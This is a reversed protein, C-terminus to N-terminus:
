NKQRLQKAHVVHLMSKPVCLIIVCAYFSGNLSINIEETV